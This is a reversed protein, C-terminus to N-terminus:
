ARRRPPAPRAMKAARGAGTEPATTALPPDRVPERPPIALQVDGFPAFRRRIREGLHPAALSPEALAARLIHRAEEEMSRGRSAARVRLRVKLSEDLNRITITAV